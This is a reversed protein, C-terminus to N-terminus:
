TRRKDIIATLEINNKAFNVIDDIQRIFDTSTKGKKVISRNSYPGWRKPNTSRFLGVVPIKLVSALHMPGSDLGIFFAANHKLFCAFERLSLKGTLNHIGLKRELEVSEEREDRDGVLVLETAMDKKVRDTFAKWFEYEIKKPTHSTFPHMVIYKKNLDISGKLSELCEPGDVPFELNPVFSKKCIQNVLEIDYEIEHKKELGKKDEIKRNLCFGWKRDYGVRVAVHALSSAVHIEKKANLSVVCDIKEKKMFSALRLIASNGSFSNKEWGIFENIYDLGKVLEINEKAAMLYIVSKPYNERVLKAAYLSLLFEGFRDTRILLIKKITSEQGNEAEKKTAEKMDSVTKKMFSHFDDRTGGSFVFSGKLFKKDKIFHVFEKDYGFIANYRKDRKKRSTFYLDFFALLKLLAAQSVRLKINTHEFRDYLRIPSWIYIRHQKRALAFVAEEIKNLDDKKSLVKKTLIIFIRLPKGWKKFYVLQNKNHLKNLSDGKLFEQATVNRVHYVYTNLARLCLFGAEIARVSYDVDEFYAFEYIQDMHGIKDIVSRKIVVSFGRCWDTEIFNKQKHEKELLSNFEDASVNNSRGEWTPNILGFRENKELIEIMKTLWMETVITDNNQLCVYPANSVRFGQNVAELFGLNEENRILEAEIDSRRALSELYEKTDAESGNDILILRYPYRTKKEIHEICAKTYELQNLIPMIIDCKM